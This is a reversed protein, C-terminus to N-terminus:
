KENLIYHGLKDRKTELYKQNIANSLIVYILFAVLATLATNGLVPNMVDLIAMVNIM